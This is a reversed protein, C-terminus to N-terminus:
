TGFRAAAFATVSAIDLETDLSSVRVVKLGLHAGIFESFGFHTLLVLWMDRM